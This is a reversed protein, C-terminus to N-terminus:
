VLPLNYTITIFLRSLVFGRNEKVTVESSKM